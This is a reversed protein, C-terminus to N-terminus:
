VWEKFLMKDLSHYFVSWFYIFYALFIM